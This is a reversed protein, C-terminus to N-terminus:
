STRTVMNERIRIGMDLVGGGVGISSQWLRFGDMMWFNVPVLLLTAIQLMQSTLQLSARRQTGVTALWFLCTYGLLIAYQGLPPFNQWQSAALVASSVVVLFVGLFLLWAVSIEAMLAHLVQPIFRLQANNATTSTQTPKQQPRNRRARRPQPLAEPAEFDPPAFDDVEVSAPAEPLPSVLHTQCIQRIQQDSILGLQYLAELGDLLEPRGANVLLEIRIPEDSSFAM